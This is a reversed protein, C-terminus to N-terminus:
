KPRALVMLTDGGLLRVGLDRNISYALRRPIAAIQTKITRNLQPALAAGTYSWDVIEYGSDRLTELALDKNYFHLHGAKHRSQILPTKRLVTSVSLELPFHVVIHRVFPRCKELFSFPDRVHEIVDLLTVVDFISRNQAHFDGLHFDVGTHSRWFSSAQPSIDWGTLQTKPL